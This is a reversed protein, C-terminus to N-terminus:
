NDSILACPPRRPSLGTRAPRKGRVDLHHGDGEPEILQDLDTLDRALGFHRTPWTKWALSFSFKLNNQRAGFM